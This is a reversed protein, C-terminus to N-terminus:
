SCVLSQVYYRELIRNMTLVSDNSVPLRVSRELVRGRSLAEDAEIPSQSCGSFLAVIVLFALLQLSVFLSVKM